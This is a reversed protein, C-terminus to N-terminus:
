GSIPKKSEPKCQTWNTLSGQPSDSFLLIERNGEERATEPGQQNNRDVWRPWLEQLAERWPAAERVEQLLEQAKTSLEKVLDKKIM